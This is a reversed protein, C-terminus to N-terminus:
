RLPQLGKSCLDLCQKFIDIMSLRNTFFVLYGIMSSSKLTSFTRRWHSSFKFDEGTLCKGILSQRHSSIQRFKGDHVVLEVSGVDHSGFTIWCTTILFHFVALRASVREYECAHEECMVFTSRSEEQSLTLTHSNHNPDQWVSRNMIRPLFFGNGRKPDSKCGIFSSIKARCWKKTTRDLMM